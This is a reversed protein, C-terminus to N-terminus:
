MINLNFLKSFLDVVSGITSAKEALSEFFKSAKAMYKTGGSGKVIDLHSRLTEVKKEGVIQGPGVTIAGGVFM